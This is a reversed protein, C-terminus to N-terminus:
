IDTCDILGGWFWDGAKNDAISAVNLTDFIAPCGPEPPFAFLIDKLFSLVSEDDKFEGWICTLLRQKRITKGIPTVSTWDDPLSQALAAFEADTNTDLSRELDSFTISRESM